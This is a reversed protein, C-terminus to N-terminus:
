GGTGGAPRAAEAQARWGGAGPPSGPGPDRKGAGGGGGGGAGGVRRRRLLLGFSSSSSSPASYTSAPVPPARAPAPVAGQQEKTRGARPSHVRDGAHIEGWIQAPFTGGDVRAATTTPGVISKTSDPYGVWVCATFHDSGGCFWADGNNETTGTKGGPTAASVPANVGTGGLVNQHLINKVTSAVGSSLVRIKKRRTRPSRTATRGREGQRDRRPELDAPTSNPGTSADLNAGSESAMRPSRRTPM